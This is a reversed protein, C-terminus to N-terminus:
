WERWQAVMFSETFAKLELNLALVSLSRESLRKLQCVPALLQLFSLNSPETNRCFYMQYCRYQNDEGVQVSLNLLMKSM